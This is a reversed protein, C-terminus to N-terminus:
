VLGNQHAYRILEARGQLGLKEFIHHLHMKVTGETIVLRQAIERNRMGQATLVLIDLERHTLLTALYRNTNERRLMLSMAQSYSQKELWLEGAAVRRLAQLLKESPAEKLVVGSVGLRLCDLARREDMTGTFVVVNTSQGEARLRELVEIGDLKPMTLDLLLIDPSLRRVAELTSEGDRCTAAVEMDNEAGLMNELAQLVLPHDDAIVIRIAM